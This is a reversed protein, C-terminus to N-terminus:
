PILFSAVVKLRPFDGDPFRWSGYMPLGATELMKLNKVLRYEGPRLGGFYYDFDIYRRALIERPSWYAHSERLQPNLWYHGRENDPTADHFIVGRGDLQRPFNDLLRWGRGRRVYLRFVGTGIGDGFDRSAVFRNYTNNVFGIYARYPTLSEPIIYMKVLTQSELLEMERQSISLHRDFLFILFIVAFLCAIFIISTIWLAIRKLM